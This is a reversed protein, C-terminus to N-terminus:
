SNDLYEKLNNKYRTVESATHYTNGDRTITEQNVWYIGWPYATSRNNYKIRHEKVVGLIYRTHKRTSLKKMVLDGIQHKDKKDIGNKM